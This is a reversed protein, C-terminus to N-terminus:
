TRSHNSFYDFKVMAHGDGDTCREPEVRHVCNKPPLAVCLIKTDNDLTNIISQCLKKKQLSSSPSPEGFSFEVTPCWQSDFSRLTSTAFTPCSFFFSPFLLCAFFKATGKHKTECTNKNEAFFLLLFSFIFFFSFYVISSCFLYFCPFFTLFTFLYLHSFHCFRFHSSIPFHFLFRLVHFFSFCPFFFRFISFVLFPFFHFSIFLFSFSLMCCNSFVCAFGHGFQQFVSM